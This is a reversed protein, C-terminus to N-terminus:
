VGRIQRTLSVLNYMRFKTTYNEFVTRSHLSPISNYDTVQAIRTEKNLSVSHIGGRSIREMFLIKPNDMVCSYGEQELYSRTRSDLLRLQANPDYPEM